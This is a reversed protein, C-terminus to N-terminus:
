CVGLIPTCYSYACFPVVHSSEIVRSASFQRSRFGIPFVLSSVLSASSCTTSSRSSEPGSPSAVYNTAITTIFVVLYDPSPLQVLRFCPQHSTRLLLLQRLYCLQLTSSAFHRTRRLARPLPLLYSTIFAPLYYHLLLLLVRLYASVRLLV